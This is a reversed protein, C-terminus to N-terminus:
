LRRFTGGLIVRVGLAIIFIPWANSWHLGFFGHMSVAGYIGAVLMWFGGRGNTLRDPLAMQMAGLVILLWPWFSWWDYPIAIGLNSALIISGVLLLIVGFALNSRLRPPRPTEPQQKSMESEPQSM